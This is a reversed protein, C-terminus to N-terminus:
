KPYAWWETTVQFSFLMVDTCMDSTQVSADPCVKRRSSLLSSFNSHTHSLFSFYACCCCCRRRSVWVCMHLWLNHMVNEEGKKKKKEREGREWETGWEPLYIGRHGGPLPLRSCLTTRKKEEATHEGVNETKNSCFRWDGRQTARTCVCVYAPMHVNKTKGSCYSVLHLRHRLRREEKRPEKKEEDDEGGTKRESM